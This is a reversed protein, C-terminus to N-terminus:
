RGRAGVPSDIPLTPDAGWERWSALYLSLQSFGAEHLAVYACSARAGKYCYLQIPSDPTAGAASECRERVREAPLLRPVAGDLDLLDTWPLWSANPLRGLRLGDDVTGSPTNATADWEDQNRVDLRIVDPADLTDLIQAMTVIPSGPPMSLVCDRAAPLVDCVEVELGLDRWAAFGGHLVRPAPFGFHALLVQARCSRGLGSDMADEYVVVHENGSLGVAGLVREFTTVLDRQGAPTSLANYEFFEPVNVAGPLHGRAYAARDRVDICVVQAQARRRCYDGVDVLLSEANM